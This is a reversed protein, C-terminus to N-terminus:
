LAGPAVDGGASASSQHRGLISEGKKSSEKRCYYFSNLTCFSINMHLKKNPQLGALHLLFISRLAAHSLISSLSMSDCFRVTGWSLSLGAAPCAVLLAQWFTSDFGWLGATETSCEGSAQLSSAGARQPTVAFGSSLNATQGSLRGWSMCICVARMTPEMSGGRSGRPLTASHGPLWSLIGVQGLATHKTSMSGERHSGAHPAPPHCHPPPPTEAEDAGWLRTRLLRRSCSRAPRRPGAPEGAAPEGGGEPAGTVETETEGATRPSPSTPSPVLHHPSAPAKHSCGTM